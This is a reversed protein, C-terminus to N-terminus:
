SDGEPTVTYIRVLGRLVKIELADELGQADDLTRAYVKTIAHQERWKAEEKSRLSHNIRSRDLERVKDKLQKLADNFANIAHRTYVNFGKRVAMSLSREDLEEGLSGELVVTKAAELFAEALGSGEVRSDAKNFNSPLIDAEGFLAAIALGREPFSTDLKYQMKWSGIFIQRPACHAAETGGSRTGRLSQSEAGGMSIPEYAKVYGCKVMCFLDSLLKAVVRQRNIEHLAARKELDYPM